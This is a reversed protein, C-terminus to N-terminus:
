RMNCTVDLANERKKRSLFRGPGPDPPIQAIPAPKAAGARGRGVVTGGIRIPPVIAASSGANTREEWLGSARGRCRL